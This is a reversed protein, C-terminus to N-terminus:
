MLRGVRDLSNYLPRHLLQAFPMDAAMQGDSSEGDFTAQCQSSNKMKDETNQVTGMTFIICLRLSKSYWATDATYISM